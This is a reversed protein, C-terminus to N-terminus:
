YFLKSFSRKQNLYLFRRIIDFQSQRLTSPEYLRHRYYFTTGKKIVWLFAAVVKSDHVQCRSSIPQFAASKTYPKLNDSKSKLWRRFIENIVVASHENNKSRCVVKCEWMEIVKIKSITEYDVSILLLVKDVYLVLVIFFSVQYKTNNSKFQKVNNKGLYMSSITYNEKM